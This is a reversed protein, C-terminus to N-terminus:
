RKAKAPPEHTPDVPPSQRNSRDAAEQIAKEVNEQRNAAERLESSSKALDAAVSKGSDFSAVMNSLVTANFAGVGIVIALVTAVATGIITSKLSKNEAKIQNVANTNSTELKEAIDKEADKLDKAFDIRATANLSAISEVQRELREQLRQQSDLLNAIRENSRDFSSELRQDLLQFRLELEERSPNSMTGDNPTRVASDIAQEEVNMSSPADSDSLPADAIPVPNLLLPETSTTVLTDGGTDDSTSVAILGNVYDLTEPTASVQASTYVNVKADVWTARM